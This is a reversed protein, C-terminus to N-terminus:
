PGWYVGSVYYGSVRLLIRVQLRRNLLGNGEEKQRHPYLLFAPLRVGTYQNVTQREVMPSREWLRAEM